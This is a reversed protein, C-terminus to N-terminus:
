YSDSGVIYSVFIRVTDENINITSPSDLVDAVLTTGSKFLSNPVLPFTDACYQLDREVTHSAIIRQPVPKSKQMDSNDLDPLGCSTVILLLFFVIYPLINRSWFKATTPKKTIAM